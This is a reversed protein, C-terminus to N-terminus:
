WFNIHKVSFNAFSLLTRLIYQM